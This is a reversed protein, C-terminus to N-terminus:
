SGFTHSVPGCCHFSRDILFGWLQRRTRTDTIKINPVVLHLMLIIHKLDIRFFIDNKDPTKVDWRCNADCLLPWSRFCSQVACTRFQCDSANAVPNSINGMRFIFAENLIQNPKIILSKLMRTNKEKSFYNICNLREGEIRVDLLLSRYTM